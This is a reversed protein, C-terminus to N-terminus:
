PLIASAHASSVMAGSAMARPAGAASEVTSYTM